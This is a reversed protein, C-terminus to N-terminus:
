KNLLATYTGPGVIRDTALQNNVQFSYIASDTKTGILGDHPGPSYNREYLTVQVAKVNGSKNGCTRNTTKKYCVWNEVLSVDGVTTGALEVTDNPGSSTIGEGWDLLSSALYNVAQVFTYVVAAINVIAWVTQKIKVLWSAGAMVSVDEPTYGLSDLEKVLKEYEQDNKLNHTQMIEKKVNTEAFAKSSNIALGSFLFVILTTLITVKKIFM